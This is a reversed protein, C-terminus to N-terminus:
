ETVQHDITRKGAVMLVLMRYIRRELIIECLLMAPDVLCHQVLPIFSRGQAVSKLTIGFDSRKSNRVLYPHFIQLRLM